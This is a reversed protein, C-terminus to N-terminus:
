RTEVGILRSADVALGDRGGPVRIATSRGMPTTAQM